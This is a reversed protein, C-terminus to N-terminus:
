IKIALIENKHLVVNKPVIGEDEMGSGKKGTCVTIYLRTRNAENM